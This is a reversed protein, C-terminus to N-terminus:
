TMRNKEIMIEPANSLNDVGTIAPENKQEFLILIEMLCRIAALM